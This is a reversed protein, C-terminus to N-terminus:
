SACGKTQGPIAIEVGYTSGAQGPANSNTCLLAHHTAKPCRKNGCEPCLNMRCFAFPNSKDRSMLDCYACWCKNM